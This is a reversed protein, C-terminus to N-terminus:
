DGVRRTLQVALLFCGAGMAFLLGWEGLPVPRGFSAERIANAAHTLPLTKVVVAAWGPLSDVPFFTGGLFAMPTIIFNTLMAQDQHTRVIMALAVALSAFFFANLAVGFWFIPGAHFQVGFAVGILVIVVAAIMGRTLGALSEGLVYSAPGVPSAQFEDFIRYYFRAINIESAMSYAQMMSAMATLGPLLFASYSVNDLQISRGIAQGFTVFYLLPSVAMGALLRLSRRRMILMERHYVALAGQLM